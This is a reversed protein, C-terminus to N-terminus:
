LKEVEVSRGDALMELSGERAHRVRLPRPPASKLDTQAIFLCRAHHAEAAALDNLWDFERVLVNKEIAARRNRIESEIELIHLEISAGKQLDSLSTRWRNAILRLLSVEDPVPILATSLNM